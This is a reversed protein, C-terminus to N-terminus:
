LDVSLWAGLDLVPPPVHVGDELGAVGPVAPVDLGLRLEGEEGLHGAAYLYVRLRTLVQVQYDLRVLASEDSLNSVASLVFTTDDWGGPAPLLLGLAAYHRGAYFFEFDGNALLWPYLTADSYGADNFFYEGTVYLTDEDSYKVGWEFGAAAQPIWDDDRDEEKPLRLRALDLAGTWRRAGGGRSLAAEARLDFVWLGTSVDGGLKLGRGDRAAASLSIETTAFLWESRLAGGVQKPTDAGDLLGVAYLNAGISEIPLHLKLLPVGAREDFVAVPDRRQQNLFDTPNWFRAAGWKIRM